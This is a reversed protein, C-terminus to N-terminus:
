PRTGDTLGRALSWDDVEQVCDGNPERQKSTPNEFEDEVWGAGKSRVLKQIEKPFYKAGARNNRNLPKAWGLDPKLPHALGTSAATSPSPTFITRLFVGQPNNIEELFRERGLKTISPWPGPWWM